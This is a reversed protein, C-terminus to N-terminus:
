IPLKQLLHWVKEKQLKKSFLMNIKDLIHRLLGSVFM